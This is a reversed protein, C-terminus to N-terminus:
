LLGLMPMRLDVSLAFGVDCGGDTPTVVYEGDMATLMDAEVLNWRVALDSWSYEVVYTDRVPGADLRLRARHPRDRADTEIVEAETIGSTWAPYGAVDSVVAMVVDAPADVHISGEAREAV